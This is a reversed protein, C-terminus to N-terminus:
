PTISERIKKIDTFLFLSLQYESPHQKLFETFEQTVNQILLFNDSPNTNPQKFDQTQETLSQNQKSIDSFSESESEEIKDAIIQNKLNKQCNNLINQITQEKLKKKKYDLVASAIILIILLWGFAIIFAFSRFGIRLFIAINPIIIVAFTEISTTIYLKELQRELTQAIPM